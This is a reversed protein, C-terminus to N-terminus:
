KSKKLSNLYDTVKRLSNTMDEIKKLNVMSMSQISPKKPNIGIMKLLRTTQGVLSTYEHYFDCGKETIQWPNKTILRFLVLEDLLRVALDYSIGVRLQMSTTKRCDESLSQVADLLEYYLQYVDRRVRTM